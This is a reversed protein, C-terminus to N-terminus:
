QNDSYFENIIIERIVPNPYAEYISNLVVTNEDDYKSLKEDIQEIMREIRQIEPIIVKADTIKIGDRVIYSGDYRAYLETDDAQNYTLGIIFSIGISLFLITIAAVSIRRILRRKLWMYKNHSTTAPSTLANKYWQFMPRYAEIDKPLNTQRFYCYLANEEDLSTDADLFRSILERAQSHTIDPSKHRHRIM